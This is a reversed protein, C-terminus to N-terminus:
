FSPITQRDARNGLNKMIELEVTGDIFRTSGDAFSFNTGNGSHWSAFGFAM